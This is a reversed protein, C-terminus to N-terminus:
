QKGVVVTTTGDVTRITATLGLKKLRPAAEDVEAQAREGKLALLQGGPAVLPWCWGILKDLAAVARATVIAAAPVSRDEARGRVVTVRDGLGLEAVTEALFVSRRLLPELLTVHLDPRVIALPIGPLGAGSGVDIVSAGQPILAEMLASNVIHRDWLREVERPGILGWEAGVTALRHEYRQLAPLAFGWREPFAPTERSVDSTM